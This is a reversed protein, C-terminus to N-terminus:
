FAFGRVESRGALQGCAAAIDVGKEERVVADLGMKRLLEAFRRTNEPKPRSFSAGPVTNVPIINLNAKLGRLLQALQRGHEQDDNFGKILAYEFTIRRGTKEIYRRCAPILIELPYKKNVPMVRNRLENNPAHLSVALVIDINQRALEDIQPVLGCTSVTIRRIGINQGQKDNLIRISKLVAPLNLLPEGMGMYVINGAKFAPTEKRRLRTTDLVQSVIEGASLNRWFGMKGTACFSCGMPCGVQTSLCITHRAKTVDGEHYLLVSEITKNDGLKWLYKRTGDESVLEEKLELPRLYTKEALWARTKEGISSMEQWCAVAKKQVWRFVQEGRYEKEGAGALLEKIEDLSLGRIDQRLCDEM